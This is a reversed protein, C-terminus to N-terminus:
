SNPSRAPGDLHVMLRREARRVAMRAAAASPLGFHKAITAFGSESEYRANVLKRDKSRLKRLARRYRWREEVKIALALPGPQESQLTENLEVSQPRRVTRRFEDCVRHRAIQRLYAPMSGENQPTFRALRAVALLAADQVLDCTDMHGRAAAPLKYRAWRRLGPLSGVLLEECATRSGQQAESVLRATSPRDIPGITVSNCDRMIVTKPLMM